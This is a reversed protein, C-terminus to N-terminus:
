VFAMVAHLRKDVVNNHNFSYLIANSQTTWSVSYPTGYGALQINFIDGMGSAAVILLLQKRFKYKM